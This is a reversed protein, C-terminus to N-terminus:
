DFKRSSAALSRSRHALAIVGLLGTTLLSISAPEPTIATLIADTRGSTSIDVAFASSRVSQSAPDFYDAQLNIFGDGLVGSGYNEAFSFNNPLTLALTYTGAALLGFDLRSDACVPNPAAPGCGGDDNSALFTAGPGSGTFLTLYPDFGGALIVSGLANTGGPANVTGGYGWTQFHLDSASSLSFSALFVDNANNPDLKGSYSLSSASAIGSVAFLLTYCFKRPFM